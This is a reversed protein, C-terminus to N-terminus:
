DCNKMTYEDAVGVILKGSWSARGVYYISGPGAGDEYELYAHVEEDPPFEALAAILEKVTM